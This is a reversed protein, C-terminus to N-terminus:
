LGGARIQGPGESKACLDAGIQDSADKASAWSAQATQVAEIQPKLLLYYFAFGAGILLVMAVPILYIVKIRRM